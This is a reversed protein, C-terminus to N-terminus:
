ANETKEELAAVLKKLIDLSKIQEVSKIGLTNLVVAVGDPGIKEQAVKLRVLEREASQMATLVKELVSVDRIDAPKWARAIGKLFGRYWGRGLPEAMAEIQEVLEAERASPVRQSRSPKPPVRAKRPAEPLASNQRETPRLGQRWGQPTAWALLVPTEKPRGRDDIDVWVETFSYLYRGLGFCSCARKFAQAEASTGANNDDAWEEGTASHAGMGHIILDCTVFVKAVLKKDESREFNASTTVVYKRTWGVPTFIENLRDTYTRQGAYPVARGRTGDESTNTVQWEVLSPHFPVELEAILEMVKEASFLPAAQDSSASMYVGNGRVSAPNKKPASM